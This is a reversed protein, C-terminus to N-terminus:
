YFSPLIEHAFVKLSASNNDLDRLILLNVGLGEMIELQRLIEDPRGYVLTFSKRLSIELSESPPLLKLREVREDDSKYALLTTFVAKGISEPDRGLSSCADIFVNMASKLEDISEGYFNWGDGIEAAIRVMRKKRGGIWIPPTPKQVPPTNCVARSLSYYKGSYSVEGVGGMLLKLVEVYERFRRYKEPTGDYEMGLSMHEGAQPESGLGVGLDLRGGLIQDLTAAMKALLAPHRYSYCLVTTGLRVRKVKAAIASALTWTELITRARGPQLHDTLWLSHFGVDEFESSLYLAQEVPTDYRPIVAGFFM